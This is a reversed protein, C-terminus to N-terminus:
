ISAVSIHKVRTPEGGIPEDVISANMYGGDVSKLYATSQNGEDDLMLSFNGATYAKSKYDAMYSAKSYRTGLVPKGEDIRGRNSEHSKPDNSRPGPIYLVERCAPVLGRGRRPWRM